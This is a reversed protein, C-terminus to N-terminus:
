FVGVSPSTIVASTNQKTCRVGSPVECEINKHVNLLSFFLKCSNKQCHSPQLREVPSVMSRSVVFITVSSETITIFMVIVCCSSCLTDLVALSEEAGGAGGIEFAGHCNAEKGVYASLLDTHHIYSNVVTICVTPFFDAPHRVM